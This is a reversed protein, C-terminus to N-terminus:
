NRKAFTEDLWDFIRQNSLASSGCQCHEEAGEESTFLIYKKPCTLADYVKKPQGPFSDEKEADLVLIPCKINHAINKITYYKSNMILEFSSNLGTTWMGHKINFKINADSDMLIDIVTNVIERNSNEIATLLSKPLSSALADYGDFVGNYLICAAIRHEFAAARAALYGGMSIGMLAIHKPDVEQTRSLAYDV